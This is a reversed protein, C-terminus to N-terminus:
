SARGDRKEIWKYVDVDWYRPEGRADYFWPPGVGMSRWNRLTKPKYGTVEGTRVPTWAERAGRPRRRPANPEPTTM